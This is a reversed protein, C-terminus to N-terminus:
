YLIEAEGNRRILDDIEKLILDRRALVAQIEKGTLRSDVADKVSKADLARLKGVFARPLRSFPYPTGDGARM